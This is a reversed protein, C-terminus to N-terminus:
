STYIILFRGCSWKKSILFLELLKTERSYYSLILALIRCEFRECHDLTPLSKSLFRHFCTSNPDFIPSFLQQIPWFDTFVLATQILFRHFYNSYLDFIPLFLHQKPWFNTFVLATQTLIRQFGLIASFLHQKPLFHEHRSSCFLLREATLYIWLGLRQSM